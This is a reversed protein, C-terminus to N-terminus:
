EIPTRCFKHYTTNEGIKEKGRHLYGMESISKEITEGNLRVMVRLTGHMAPHSPGVNMYVRSDEYIEDTDEHHIKKELANMKEIEM